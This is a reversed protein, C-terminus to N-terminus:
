LSGDDIPNWKGKGGGGGGQKKEKRNPLHDHKRAINRKASGEEVGRTEPVKKDNNISRTSELHDSTNFFISSSNHSLDGPTLSSFTAACAIVGFSVCILDSLLIFM